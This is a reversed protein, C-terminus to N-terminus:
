TYSSEGVGSRTACRQLGERGEGPVLLARDDAEWSAEVRGSWEGVRIEAIVVWAPNGPWIDHAIFM